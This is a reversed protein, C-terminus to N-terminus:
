VTPEWGPPMMRRLEELGADAAAGSIISITFGDVLAIRVGDVAETAGRFDYTSLDFGNGPLGVRFRLSTGESSASEIDSIVQLTGRMRIFGLGPMQRDTVDIEVDEGALAVLRALAGTWDLTPVWEHPWRKKDAIAWRRQEILDLARRRRRSGLWSM